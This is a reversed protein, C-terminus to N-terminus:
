QEGDHDLNKIFADIALSYEQYAMKDIQIQGYWILDFRSSLRKFNRGYNRHLLETVYDRNTKYPKWIIDRRDNLKQLVELYRIRVALRYDQKKLAEDLLRQLNLKGLDEIKDLDAIPHIESNNPRVSRILYFLFFGLLVLILAYGLVKFFSDLFPHFGSVNTKPTWKRNRQEGTKPVWVTNTDRYKMEKLLEQYQSSDLSNQANSFVGTLLFIAGILLRSWSFATSM